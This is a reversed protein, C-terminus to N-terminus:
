RDLTGSGTAARRGPRGVSRGRVPAAVEVRHGSARMVRGGRGQRHTRRRLRARDTIAVGVGAGVFSSADVAGTDRAREQKVRHRCDTSWCTGDSAGEILSYRVSRAGGVRFERDWLNNLPDVTWSVLVRRTYANAFRREPDVARRLAVFREWEPYRTALAAADKTHLKGWHPRATYDDMIAEVGAFYERHDTGAFAHVAIYAREEGYGLSLPIDDPASFRVEVPFSIRFGRDDILRRVRTLAEACAARPISHEMEVFRVRRPSTLVRDSRDVYRHAGASPVRRMVQPTLQPWRRAVRCAAGFLVNAYLEDDRWARSRSRPALPEETRDHAKTLAWGTHPVWFLEFHDHAEVHADLEALVADVRLPQEVARLNFAPVVALTITAVIGLAGLGVRACHFLEPEEIASCDVVRGDALVIRLGVIGAALGPLRLGTGHTGTSTAGAVTQEAIDGLNPLALGRRDLEDNLKALPIGAQVTVRRAQPDIALVKTLHDLVVLRGDTVAIGTFSHGTGVVKVARGERAAQQVVTVLQDETTPRDISAPRASQNGAWNTWRAGPAETV